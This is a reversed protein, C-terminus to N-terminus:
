DVRFQGFDACHPTTCLTSIGANLIAINHVVYLRLMYLMGAHITLGTAPQKTIPNGQSPM